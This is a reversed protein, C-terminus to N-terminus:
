GSSRVSDRGREKHRYMAADAQRLLQEATRNSAPDHV